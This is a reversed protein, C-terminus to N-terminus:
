NWYVSAFLEHLWTTLSFISLSLCKIGTYAHLFVMYDHLWCLLGAMLPTENWYVCAFLEHLWTTLSFISLSLRKIGTYAHWFGMYDISVWTTLALFNGVSAKLLTHKLFGHLWVSRMYDCCFVLWWLRKMGTYVDWFSMYDSPDWTTLSFISLSLRKIGTYANWFGM